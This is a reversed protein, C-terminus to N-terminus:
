IWDSQSVGSWFKRFPMKYAQLSGLRGKISKKAKQIAQLNSSPLQYASFEYIYPTLLLARAKGLKNNLLNIQGLIDKAGETFEKDAGQFAKSVVM